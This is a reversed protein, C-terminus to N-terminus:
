LKLGKGNSESQIHHHLKEEQVTAKQRHLETVDAKLTDTMIKVDRYFQTTDIHRAESGKIGRQLGYKAMAEAYTDQYKKLKIRSM